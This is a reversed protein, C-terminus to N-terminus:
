MSQTDAEPGPHERQLVVPRCPLVTLATLILLSGASAATPEAHCYSCSPGPLQVCRQDAVAVMRM